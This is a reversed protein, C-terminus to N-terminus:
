VFLSFVTNQMNGDRLSEHIKSINQGVTVEDVGTGNPFLKHNESGHMRIGLGERIFEYLRKTRGLYPSAPAHGRAGSLFAERLTEHLSTARTSIHSRFESISTLSPCSASDSAETNCFFDMIVSASSAAVARMQDASDMVTTKDFTDQMIIVLKSFLISQQSTPIFSGFSSALEEQIIDEFHQFFELRLARLDLAQCLLYLYSSILM